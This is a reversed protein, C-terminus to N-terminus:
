GMRAEIYSPDNYRDAQISANMFLATVFALVIAVGIVTELALRISKRLRRKLRKRKM